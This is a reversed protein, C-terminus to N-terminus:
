ERLMDTLVIEDLNVNTVGRRKCRLAFYLWDKQRMGFRHHQARNSELYPQSFCPDDCCESREMRVSIFCTQFIALLPLLPLVYRGQFGELETIKNM